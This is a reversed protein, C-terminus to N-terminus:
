NLVETDRNVENDNADFEMIRAIYVKGVRNPIRLLALWTRGFLPLSFAGDVPVPADNPDATLEHAVCVVYAANPHLQGGLLYFMPGAGPAAKEAPPAPNVRQVTICTTAPLVSKTVIQEHEHAGNTEIRVPVNWYTGAGKSCPVLGTHLNIGSVSVSMDYDTDVFCQLSSTAAYNYFVTVPVTGGASVKVPDGTRPKIIQAPM